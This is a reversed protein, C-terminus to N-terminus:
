RNRFYLDILCITCKNPRLRDMSLISIGHVMLLYTDPILKEWKYDEYKMYIAPDFGNSQPPSNSSNAPEAMLPGIIMMLLMAHCFLKM